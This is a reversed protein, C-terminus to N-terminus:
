LRSPFGKDEKIKRKIWDMFKDEWEEETKGADKPVIARARGGNASGDTAQSVDPLASSRPTVGTPGGNAGTGRVPVFSRFKGRESADIDLARATQSHATSPPSAPEGKDDHAPLYIEPKLSFNNDYAITEDPPLLQQIYGLIQPGPIRVIIGDKAIQVSASSGDSTNQSTHTCSFFLFGGSSTTQEVVAKHAAVNSISYGSLEIVVDKCLLYGTPFCPLPGSFTAGKHIGEKVARPTEKNYEQPWSSWKFQDNNRMFNKSLDFFQPQFWSSRDVTVLTVNMQIKVSFRSSGSTVIHQGSASSSKRGGSAIWLPVAWDTSSADSTHLDGTFDAKDESDIVVTVWRSGAGGTTTIPAAKRYDSLSPLQVADQSDGTALARLNSEAVDKSGSVSNVLRTQQVQAARAIDLKLEVERLEAMVTAIQRNVNQTQEATTTSKALIWDTQRQSYKAAERMVARQADDVKGLADALDAVVASPDLEQVRAVMDSKQEATLETETKFIVGGLADAASSAGAGSKPERVLRTAITANIDVYTKVLTVASSRYKGALEAQASSLADSAADLQARLTSEDQAVHRALSGLQDRLSDLQQLKAKRNVEIMAPDSHLDLPSFSTDLASAWDYPQMIVPLVRSAGYLSGLTSERLSDKADQLSEGISKIDLHAVCDRVGHYDGRVVADSWKSAIIANQIAGENVIRRTAAEMSEMRESEPAQMAKTLSDTRTRRWSEATQLYDLLLAEGVEMRSMMRAGVRSGDKIIWNEAVPGSVVVDKGHYVRADNKYYANKESTDSLLWSRMKQQAQRVVDQSSDYKPVLNNLAMEYVVSLSRGNPGNVIKAADYLQDTLRFEAENVAVPKAFNSYVGSNTFALEDKALFRTPFQLSLFSSAGDSPGFLDNLKNWLVRKLDPFKGTAWLDSDHGQAHEQGGPLARSSVPGLSQAAEGQQDEEQAYKMTATDFRKWEQDRLYSLHLKRLDAWKGTIACEALDGIQKPTYNLLNGYREIKTKQLIRGRRDVVTVPLLSFKGASDPGPQM